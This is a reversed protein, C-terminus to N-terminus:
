IGLERKAQSIQGDSLPVFGDKEVIAQGETSLIFKLFEQELRPLDQGPQKNVYVYLIRALPYNGNAANESSPQYAPGGDTKSLPVVRVASTLYGFGSYGIGGLTNGVSQVVSSSGPQENVRTSYDGKCLAVDKFYGYTGSVSNRGFLQIRRSTWSGTLGAQGWNSIRRSAGCRRTSSFLADVQPLSLQKIPNDKHVYVSLADIAVPVATPKYGHRGQFADVENDKMERSMPGFNSNGETLAPPATSSGAAQIQITVWPYFKKFDESWFSMLNALTDSGVSNITGRLPVFVKDYPQPAAWGVQVALTSALATLIILTTKM